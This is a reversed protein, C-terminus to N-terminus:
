AEAEQRLEALERELEAILDEGWALRILCVPPRRPAVRSGPPVYNARETLGFTVAGFRFKDAVDDPLWVFSPELGLEREEKSPAPSLADGFAKELKSRYNGEDRRRRVPMLIRATARVRGGPIPRPVGAALLLNVLDSQLARKARHRALQAGRGGGGPSANMSAPPFLELEAIGM